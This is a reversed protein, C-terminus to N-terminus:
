IPDWRGAAADWALWQSGNWQIWTNRADDWRPEADSTPAVTPAAPPPTSPSAVAAAAPPPGWAAPAAAAAGAGAVGVAPQGLSSAAVVRTKAVLDGVRRHQPTALAAVGGVIPLGPIGDVIWLVTRLAARGIGCPRGADNVCRLGLLLKGPTWGTLGQLVIPFAIALALWTLAVPGSDTSPLVYVTDDIQVCVEDSGDLNALDCFGPPLGSASEAQSLFVGGVVILVILGDVLWAVFRRGLVATPDGAATTSTM